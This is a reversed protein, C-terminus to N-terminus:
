LREPLHRRIDDAKLQALDKNIAAVICDATPADLAARLEGLMHPAAVLYLRKMEGRTRAQRLRNAIDRTYHQVYSERITSRPDLRHRRDGVGSSGRGHDDSGLESERQREPPNVLDEHEILPGRPREITFLRARAEDAVLIWTSEM